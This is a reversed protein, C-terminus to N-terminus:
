ESAGPTLASIKSAMRDRVIVQFAAEAEERALDREKITKLWLKREPSWRYGREKAKDKETFHVTASIEVRPEKMEDLVPELDYHSLLEMMLMADPLARHHVRNLMKHEAGLHILSRAHIHKPYVVDEATDIWSKPRFLEKLDPFNELEANLFSEEFGSNHAVCFQARNLVKILFYFAEKREHTDALMDATIGNVASVEAPIQRGPPLKLLFSLQSVFTKFRTDWLVVGIEIVVDEKPNFGTTEFDVGALLM